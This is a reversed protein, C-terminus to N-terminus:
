ASEKRIVVRSCVAAIRGGYSSEMHVLFFEPYEKAIREAERKATPIDRVLGAFLTNWASDPINWHQYPVDGIKWANLSSVIAINRLNVLNLECVDRLEVIITEQTTTRVKMVFLDNAHLGFEFLHGDHFKPGPMRGDQDITWSDMPEM